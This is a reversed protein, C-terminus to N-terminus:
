PQQSLMQQSANTDAYLYVTLAPFNGLFRQSMQFVTSLPNFSWGCGLPLLLVTDRYTAFMYVDVVSAQNVEAYGHVSM